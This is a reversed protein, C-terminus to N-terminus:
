SRAIYTLMNSEGLTEPSTVTGHFHWGIGIKLQFDQHSVSWHRVVRLISLVKYLTVQGGRYRVHMSLAVRHIPLCFNLYM